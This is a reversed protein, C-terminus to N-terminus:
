TLIIERELTALLAVPVKQAISRVARQPRKELAVNEIGTSIKIYNNFRGLNYCMIEQKEIM